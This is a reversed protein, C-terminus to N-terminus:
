VQAIAEITRLEGLDKLKLHYASNHTLTPARPWWHSTEQLACIDVKFRTLDRTLERRKLDKTLRRKAERLMTCSKSQSYVAM